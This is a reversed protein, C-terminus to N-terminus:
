RDQCVDRNETKFGKSQGNMRQDCGDYTRKLGKVGDDGAEAM